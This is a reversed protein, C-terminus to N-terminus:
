NSASEEILDFAHNELIEHSGEFIILEINENENKYLVERGDIEGLNDNSLGTRSTVMNLIDEKPIVESSGNDSVLKNYMNFSHTIPVPGTYGDHIGAFIKVKSDQNNSRNMHLPSREMAKDSNIGSDSGVCNLLDDVYTEDRGVSEHYWDELDTIPVWAQFSKISHEINMLAVLTAYGGGSAGVVYIEDEDVNGNDIAYQISDDIDSVVFPSGCSKEHNNVGRFDPQIYNWDLEKARTDLVEPNYEFDVNWPHLAVILPAKEESSHHYGKQVEDDVSSPIEVVEFGEERKEPMVGSVFNYIGSKNESVLYGVFISIVVILVAFIIKKM